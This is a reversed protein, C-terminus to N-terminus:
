DEAMPILGAPAPAGTAPAPRTHPQPAVPMPNPAPVAVPTTSGGTGAKAKKWEKVDASVVDVAKLLQGDTGRAWDDPTIEVAVDPQVGQKEMNIGKNTFV